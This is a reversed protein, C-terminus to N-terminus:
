KYLRRDLERLVNVVSQVEVQMGRTTLKGVLTNFDMKKFQEHRSLTKYADACPIFLQKGNANTTTIGSIGSIGSEGNSNANTSGSNTASANSLSSTSSNGSISSISSLSSASTNTSASGPTISNLLPISPLSASFSPRSNLQPVSPQSQSQPQKTLIPKTREDSVKSAITTCFLTSMPDSQCQLCTGPNGTCGAKSGDGSEKEKNTADKNSFEKNINAILSNNNNDNNASKQGYSPITLEPGASALFGNNTLSPSTYQNLEVTPGPHLVHLKEKRDVRNLNDYDNMSNKRNLVSSLIPPLKSDEEIIDGHLPQDNNNNSFEEKSCGNGSCKGGSCGGHGSSNSSKNDKSANALNLSKSAERSAERCVCPSDDSCFGCPEINDLDKSVFTKFLDNNSFIDSSSSDHRNMIDPRSNNNSNNNSTGFGNANDKKSVNTMSRAQKTREFFKNLKQQKASPESSTTAALTAAPNSKSNFRFTFDIEKNASVMSSNDSNQDFKRKKLPVAKLPKFDNITQSINDNTDSKATYQPQHQYQHMTATNTSASIPVSNNKPGKIGITECICLDKDCVGCNGDDEVDNANTPVPSPVQSAPTPLSSVSTSGAAFRGYNNVNNNTNNNSSSNNFNYNNNPYSGTPTMGNYAFPSPTNSLSAFGPSTASSGNSFSNFSARRDSRQAQLAKIYGNKEELLKELYTIKASLNSIIDTNDPPSGGTTSATGSNNSVGTATLNDVLRTQCRPCEKMNVQDNLRAVKNLLAKKELVVNNFNKNLISYDNNVNTLSIEIRNREHKLESLSGELEQIKNAKRERFARQAARNQAKRKTTPMDLSPKRGPKPRPPLVWQKSTQIKIGSFEGSAAPSSTSM